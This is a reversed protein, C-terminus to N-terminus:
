GMARYLDRLAAIEAGHHILEDLEHLIFAARTDDGWRGAIPGMPTTLGDADAATLHARFLAYAQDLQEAAAAASGPEGDRDLGGVPTLGIWTANREGALLYIVHSMRWAITTLPPPDVPKGATEFRYTGDENRRLSWCGPAPEWFYEEDTMGKVRNRLRDFAFDALTLLDRKIIELAEAM